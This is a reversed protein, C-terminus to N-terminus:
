VENSKRLYTYSTESCIVCRLTTFFNREKEYPDEKFHQCNSQHYSSEKKQAVRIGMVTRFLVWYRAKDEAMQM